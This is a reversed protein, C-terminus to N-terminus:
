SVRCSKSVYNRHANSSSSLICSAADLRNLSMSEPTHQERFSNANCIGRYKVKSYLFYMEGCKKLYNLLYLNIM